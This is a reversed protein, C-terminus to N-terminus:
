NGARTQADILGDVITPLEAYDRKYDLGFCEVSKALDALREFHAHVRQKDDVDLLFAHPMLEALAQQQGMRNISLGDKGGAGLVYIRTLPAPEKAIRFRSDLAFSQKDGDENSEGTQGFLHYASDAFLDLKPGQPLVSYAGATEVLEIVDESLFRAGSRALAGALTTKGSQSTGLFVHACNDLEVASGHLFLKGCHNGIIPRISAEFISELTAQDTGPVPRASIDFTESHIEFDAAGEFRILFGRESRYFAAKEEGDPGIWRDYPQGPLPAQVRASEVEFRASM